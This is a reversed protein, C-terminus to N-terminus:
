ILGKALRAVEKGEVPKGQLAGEPGLLEKLVSGINVSKGETRMKGLVSQIAETVEEEGVTEVGSAYEELVAVQAMEKSQLDERNASGFEQAAARSSAAKKRLLALMQVDTRLPNSTKAANTTEALVARLVNLRGPTLM